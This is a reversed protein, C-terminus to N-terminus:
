KREGDDNEESNSISRFFEKLEEPIDEEKDIAIVVHDPRAILGGIVIPLIWLIAVKLDSTVIYIITFGTLYVVLLTYALMMLTFEQTM